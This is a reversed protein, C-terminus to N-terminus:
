PTTRDIWIILRGQKGSGGDTVSVIMYDDVWMPNTAVIREAVTVSRNDILKSDMLDFGYPDTITMDYKKPTGAGTPCDTTRDGLAGPITEVEYLFGIADIPDSVVTGDTHSTWDVIIKVRNAVEAFVKKEVVVTGTM